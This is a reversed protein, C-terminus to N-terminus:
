SIIGAKEFAIAKTKGHLVLEALTEKKSKIGDDQEKAELFFVVCSKLDGEIENFLSVPLGSGAFDLFFCFRHTLSWLLDDLDDMHNIIGHVALLQLNNAITLFSQWVGEPAKINWVTKGLAIEFFRIILQRLREKIEEYDKKVTFKILNKGISKALEQSLSSLFRDPTNYFDTINDVFRRCMIYELTSKIGEQDFDPEKSLPSFYRELYKPLPSLVQNIVADDIVECSKIKNYFLRLGVYVSEIGLNIENSIELFEVIHMANQSLSDAYSRDNYLEKIYKLFAQNFISTRSQGLSPRTQLNLTTFSLGEFFNRLSKDGMTIDTKIPLVSEIELGAGKQAIVKGGNTYLSTSDYSSFKNGVSTNSVSTNEDGKCYFCILSITFLIIFLNKTRM